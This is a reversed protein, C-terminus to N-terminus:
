WNHWPNVAAASSSHRSSTQQLLHRCDLFRSLRLPLPPPPPHDSYRPCVTVAPQPAASSKLPFVSCCRSSSVSSPSSFSSSSSLSSTPSGSSFSSSSSFSSFSPSSFSSPNSDPHTCVPNRVSTLESPGGKVRRWVENSHKHVTTM